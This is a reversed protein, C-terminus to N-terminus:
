LVPDLSAVVERVKTPEQGFIADRGNKGLPKRVSVEGFGVTKAESRSERRARDEGLATEFHQANKSM